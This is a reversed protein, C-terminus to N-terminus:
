KMNHDMAVQLMEDIKKYYSLSLRQLKKQRISLLIVSISMIILALFLSLILFRFAGVSAFHVKKFESEDVISVFSVGSMLISNSFIMYDGGKENKTLLYNKKLVENWTGAPFSLPKINDHPFQRTSDLEELLTHSLTEMHYIDGQNVDILIGNDLAVGVRVREKFADGLLINPSTVEFFSPSFKIVAVGVTVGEVIIAKAYYLGLQHSTVGFAAYFAEGRRFAKKFYPRFGYNNGIFRNNSSFFCKGSSDLVFADLVGDIKAIYSLHRNLDKNYYEYNLDNVEKLPKYMILNIVSKIQSFSLELKNSKEEVYIKYNDINNKYMSHQTFITGIVGLTLIVFSLIYLSIFNNNKFILPDIDPENNLAM